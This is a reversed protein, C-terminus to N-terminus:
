SLLNVIWSSGFQWLITGAVILAIVVAKCWDQGVITGLQSVDNSVIAGAVLYEEGMLTYDCSAVMMPMQWFGATGGIQFAGVTAASECAIIADQMTNGLIFHAGPREEECLAMIAATYGGGGIYRVDTDGTARGALKYNVEVVDQFMSVMVADPTTCILHANLEGCTRAVLNLIGLGPVIWHSSSAMGLTGFHFLIPRGLEVCRSVAEKVAALAPLNRLKQEGRREARKMGIICLFTCILIIAIEAMTALHIVGQVAFERNLM